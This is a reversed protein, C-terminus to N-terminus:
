QKELLTKLWAQMENLQASLDSIEEKMEELEGRRTRSLESANRASLATVLNQFFRPYNPRGPTDGREASRLFLEPHHIFVEVELAESLTLSTCERTDAANRLFVDARSPPLTIDQALNPLRFQSVDERPRISENLMNFMFPEHIEFINRNSMTTWYTNFLPGLGEFICHAM